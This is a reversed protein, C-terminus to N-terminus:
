RDRRRRGAEGGGCDALSVTVHQRRVGASAARGGSLEEVAADDALARVRGADLEAPHRAAQWLFSSPQPDSSTPPATSTSPPGAARGQGQHEHRHHARNAHPRERGGRCHRSTPTSRPPPASSRSTNLRHAGQVRPAPRAIRSSHEPVPEQAVAHVVRAPRHPRRGPRPSLHEVASAPRQDQHRLRCSPKRRSAPRAHTDRGDDDAGYGQRQLLARRRELIRRQDDRRSAM